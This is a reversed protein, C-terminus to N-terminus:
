YVPVRSITSAVVSNQFTDALRATSLSQPVQWSLDRAQWRPGQGHCACYQASSDSNPALM